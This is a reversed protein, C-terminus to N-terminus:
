GLPHFCTSTLSSLTAAAQVWPRLSWQWSRQSGNYVGSIKVQADHARRVSIDRPIHVPGVKQGWSNIHRFAISVFGYQCSAQAEQPSKCTAVILDLNRVLLSLLGLSRTLLFLRLLRLTPVGCSLWMACASYRCTVCCTCCKHKQFPKEHVDAPHARRLSSFAGLSRIESSISSM